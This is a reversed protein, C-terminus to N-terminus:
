PVKTRHKRVADDDDRQADETPEIGSPTTRTGESLPRLPSRLPTAAGRGRPEWGSKREPALRGTRRARSTRGMSTLRSDTDATVTLDLTGQVLGVTYTGLLRRVIRVTDLDGRINWRRCIALDANAGM